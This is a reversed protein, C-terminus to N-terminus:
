PLRLEVVSNEFQDVVLLRKGGTGPVVAIAVPMDLGGPSGTTLRMQSDPGGFVTTVVGDASVKRIARNRPDILFVDGSEDAAMALIDRRTDNLPAGFQAASGAGDAFGM